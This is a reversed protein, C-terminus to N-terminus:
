DNAGREALKDAIYACLERRLKGQSGGWLNMTRSYEELPSCDHKSAPIPYFKNGSHNSWGEALIPVNVIKYQKMECCLGVCPNKPYAGDALERLRKIADKITASM